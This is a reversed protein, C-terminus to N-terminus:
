EDNEGGKQNDNPNDGTDLEATDFNEAFECSVNLGFMNNIQACAQQRAKLRSERSAVTGGLNRLVEDTILREKKQTNVNAIGLYTLIENWYQTKLQYVKDAIFPADTKISKLIDPRLNKDGFIFPENGDYRMYLNKMTLRQSEDCAILIPTKQAKVNVDIVRDFEYLRRATEYVQPVSNTHVLNNFIIVSDTNDLQRFYGNTAYARREIPIRYVDLQGGIMVQLTLYGLVEDYFFVCMGDMFLCLELFRKDVSEPLGKWDFMCISLETLREIYNHWALENNYLTEWFQGNKTIGNVRKKKRGM